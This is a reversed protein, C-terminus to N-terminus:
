EDTDMEVRGDPKVTGLIPYKVEIYPDKTSGLYPVPQEYAYITGNPQAQLAAAIAENSTRCIFVGPSEPGPVPEPWRDVAKWDPTTM